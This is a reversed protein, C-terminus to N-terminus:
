NQAERLALDALESEPYRESAPSHYIREVVFGSKQLVRLSPRNSTAVTAYLPRQTVELLFLQLAQSAIGMGWFARDIWYGVHDQNEIPFCSIHGVFDDGVLIARVVNRPDDLSKAWISDFAERTRPITVAMRNSEPDLQLDYMKPLDSPQVPRLRVCKADLCGLLRKLVTQPDLGRHRCAYALSKGGCSYDIGLEQFVALTAPHEIIWDSVATDLDCQSMEDDRAM